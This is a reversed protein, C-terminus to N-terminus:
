CVEPLHRIFTGYSVCSNAGTTPGAGPRRYRGKEPDKLLVEERTLGKWRAGPGPYCKQGMKGVYAAPVENAGRKAAVKWGL